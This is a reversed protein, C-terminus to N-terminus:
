SERSANVSTTATDFDNAASSRRKALLAVGSGFRRYGLRSGIADDIALASWIFPDPLTVLRGLLILPYRALAGHHRLRAHRFTKHFPRVRIPDLPICQVGRERKGFVRIGTKYIPTLWPDFAAFKGDGGLVRRIEPFATSTEFHHASGPAFIADFYGDPFSLQEAGCLKCHLPVSALRAIEAGLELEPQFPSILWAEGAGALAFAVAWVGHGGLQGIRKGAVPALFRLCDWESAGDFKSLSWVRRPNPFPERCRAMERLRYLTWPVEGLQELQGLNEIERLRATLRGAESGYFAFDSERLSTSRSGM